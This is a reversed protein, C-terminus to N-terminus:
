VKAARLKGNEDVWLECHLEVTSADSSEAALSIIHRRNPILRPVTVGAGFEAPNMALGILHNAHPLDKTENFDAISIYHRENPDLSFPGDLLVKEKDNLSSIYTRYFTCNIIKGHGVNKVAVAITHHVGFENVVVRDFPEGEGIAIQLSGPLMMPVSDTPLSESVTVVIAHGIRPKRTIWAWVRSRLKKKPWLHEIQQRSVRVGSWNHLQTRGPITMTQSRSEKYYLCSKFDLQMDDWYDKPIERLSHEFQSAIHSQIQRLGWARVDGSILKANIEKRAEQHEVGSYILRTGAAPPPLFSPWQTALLKKPDSLVAISDNVIYDIADSVNM